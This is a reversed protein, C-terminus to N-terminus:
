AQHHLHSFEAQNLDWPTLPVLLIPTYLSTHNNHEDKLSAIVATTPDAKERKPKEGWGSTKPNGVQIVGECCDSKQKKVGVRTGSESQEPVQWMSLPLKQRQPTPEPDGIVMQPMSTPLGRATAPRWNTPRCDALKLGSGGASKAGNQYGGYCTYQYKM